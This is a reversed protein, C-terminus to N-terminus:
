DEPSDPARQTMTQARQMADEWEDETLPQESVLWRLYELAEAVDGESLQDVLCHLEDRADM